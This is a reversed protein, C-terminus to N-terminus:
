CSPSILIFIYSIILNIICLSTIVRFFCPDVVADQINLIHEIIMMYFSDLSVMLVSRVFHVVTFFFKITTISFSFTISIYFSYMEFNNFSFLGTDQVDSCGLIFELQLRLPSAVVKLILKYLLIHFTFSISISNSQFQIHERHSLQDLLYLRYNQSYSTLYTIQHM